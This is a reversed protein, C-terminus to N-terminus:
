CGDRDCAPHSSRSREGSGSLVTYLCLVSLTLSKGTQRAWRAVVFQNPDELFRVQYETPVFGTVQQFFELIDGTILPEGGTEARKRAQDMRDFRQDIKSWLSWVM